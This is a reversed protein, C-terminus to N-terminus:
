GPCLGGGGGPVCPLISSNLHLFINGRHIAFYLEKFLIFFYRYILLLVSVSLVKQILLTEFEIKYTPIGWRIM